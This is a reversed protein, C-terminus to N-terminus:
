LEKILCPNFQKNELDGSIPLYYGVPNCLVHTDGLTYDCSTHTHGHVWVDIKKTLILDDLNNTFYGNLPDGFYQPAVSKYSPLWHTVVVTKGSFPTDLEETLAKICKKHYETHLAPTWMGGEGYFTYKFDNILVKPSVPSYNSYLPTLIFRVDDIVKTKCLNGETDLYPKIDRNYFEHNGCVHLYGKYGHKKTFTSLHLDVVDIEAIDGAAILLTNSPDEPVKLLSELFVQPYRCYELHLDSVIQIKM